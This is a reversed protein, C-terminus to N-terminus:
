CSKICDSSDLVVLVDIAFM